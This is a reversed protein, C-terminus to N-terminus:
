HVGGGVNGHTSAGESGNAVLLAAVVAEMRMFRSGKVLVTVPPADGVGALAARLADALARTSAHHTAGSGFAAAAEAALSGCTDLRDIGAARAAEGIEHHFAAGEDGVEGMDGIALWRLGDRAALVDIAARMSDPNANYSDDIITSGGVGARQALRGAVPRFAELGGVIADLPVGAAIGAAAAALANSVMHRGAVALRVTASGAPTALELHETYERNQGATDTVFRGTVAAPRDLAFDVITAGAEAAAACWVGVRPDDANLIAHGDRPLARVLDAHEAAVEDVSRMFEQHERQANCVVAITPQVIAALERTEGRHNMGIEFVALRHTDRLALVSLPLGIANNFNGPTAVVAADGAAARFVSAIMEKTTTKGNSGAVAAVPIAFRRRWDAALAGLAALPEDVAVLNGALDVARTNAVVAAVAGGAIAQAVFDHGDFREGRLAFFLDGPAVRRTDSVVRSFTVGAGIVRGRMARAAEITDM